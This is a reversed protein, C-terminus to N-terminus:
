SSVNFGELNGYAIILKQWAALGAALSVKGEFAQGASDSFVSNAYVNYPLYQWGSLTDNESAAFIQDVKEGGFYSLPKNLWASSTIVSRQSPFGGYTQWTSIAKANTSFWEAFGIAALKNTSANMVSTSSGGQQASAHAGATYQPVPAVRWDGSSTPAFYQLTGVGWGGTVWSAFTGNKIGTVWASTYLPANTYLLGQKLLQGYVSAWKLTGPDSLNVTGSTGSFQFPKGGAQWIMSDAVTPDGSDAAMYESSNEQHLKKADAVYQAWTTPVTLGYKDFVTKNYFLALPGSDQPVGYIGGDLNVQSWAVTTYTNALSSVGYNNLNLVAQSLVFQPLASYDFQVVDPIGSSAKIATDLKAYENYDVEMDVYDVKVKPYQKEFAAVMPATQPAWGWFVLKTPKQLAAAIKQQIPTGGAATKPSAGASYSGAVAFAGALGVVIITTWVRRSRTNNKLM